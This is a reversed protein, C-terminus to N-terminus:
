AVHYPWIQFPVVFLSVVCFDNVISDFKDTHKHSLTKKEKAQQQRRRHIGM